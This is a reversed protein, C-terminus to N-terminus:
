SHLQNSRTRQLNIRRNRFETNLIDRQFKADSFDVKQKEASTSRGKWYDSGEEVNIGDLNRPALRQQETNNFDAEQQQNTRGKDSQCEVYKEYDDLYSIKKVVLHLTTMKFEFCGISSDM